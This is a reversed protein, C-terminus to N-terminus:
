ILNVIKKCKSKRIFAYEVCNSAGSNAEQSFLCWDKEVKKFKEMRAHTPDHIEILIQDFPCEEEASDLCFIEDFLDWEALDADFKLVHIHDSGLAQVVERLSKCGRCKGLKFKKFEIWDPVEYDKMDITAIHCQYKNWMGTEFSIEGFSGISLVNCRHMYDKLSCIYKGGDWYNGIFERECICNSNMYRFLTTDVAGMGKRPSEELKLFEANGFYICVPAPDRVRQHVEAHRRESWIVGMFLVVLLFLPSVTLVLKKIKEPPRTTLM